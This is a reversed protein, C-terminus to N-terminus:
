WIFLNGLARFFYSSFDQTEEFDAKKFHYKFSTQDNEDQLSFIFYGRKHYEWERLMEGETWNERLTSNNERLYRIYSMADERTMSYTEDVNGFNKAEATSNSVYTETEIVTALEVGVM